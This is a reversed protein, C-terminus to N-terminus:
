RGESLLPVFVCQCVASKTIKGRRDNVLKTLVQVPQDGLPVLLIGDRKLQRVVPRPIEPTGATIAIRDYLERDELPPWGLSGDARHIEVAKELGAKKINSRAFDVLEPRIELSVIKGTPGVIVAMCAANYGSGCGIELVIHGRLLQLEELMLAVMHPASITQGTHRLPLPTDEYASQTSDQPVFLHRPVTLMANKVSETKIINAEVLQRVLEQRDRLM